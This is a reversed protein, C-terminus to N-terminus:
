AEKKMPSLAHNHGVAVFKRFIEKPPQFRTIKVDMEQFLQCVESGVLSDLQGFKQHL